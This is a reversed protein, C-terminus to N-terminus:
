DEGTKQKKKFRSNGDFEEEEDDIFDDDDDVEGDDVFDEDADDDSEVNGSVLMALGDDEGDDYADDDSLGGDGLAQDGDKDTTIADDIINSEISGLSNQRGFKTMGSKSDGSGSIDDFDGPIGLGDGEDEEEDDVEEAEDEEDDDGMINAGANTEEEREEDDEDSAEDVSEGSKDHGDLIILQPIMKFIEDEYDEEQIPCSMLNLSQLGDVLFLPQLDEKVKVPNGALSLTRLSSLGQLSEFGNEINNDDLILTKLSSLTPFNELSKIKNGVLSLTKLAEYRSLLKCNEDTFVLGVVKGDLLIETATKTDYGELAKALDSSADSSSSAAM